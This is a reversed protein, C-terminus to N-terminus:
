KGILEVRGDAFWTMKEIWVRGPARLLCLDAPPFATEALRAWSGAASRWPLRPRGSNFLRGSSDLSLQTDAESPCPYVRVRREPDVEALLRVGGAQGSELLREAEAQFTLSGGRYPSSLVGTSSDVEVM